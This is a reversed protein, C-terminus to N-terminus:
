LYRLGEAEDDDVSRACTPCYWRVELPTGCARHRATDGDDSVGAGWDALLRLAGALEGGAATLEYSSRPPRQSYPRAVVLGRAELQRLRTSLVNSAIGRVDAQLEGFRRPGGLLAEVVLLAWRDGVRSLATELPSAGAAEAM